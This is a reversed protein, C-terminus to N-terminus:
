AATQQDKNKLHESLGLLVLYETAAKFTPKVPLSDRFNEIHHRVKDVDITTLHRQGNTM